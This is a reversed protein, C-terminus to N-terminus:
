VPSDPLPPATTTGAQIQAKEANTPAATFGGTGGGSPPAQLRGRDLIDGIFDGLPRGGTARL